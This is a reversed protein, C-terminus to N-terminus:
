ERFLHSLKSQSLEYIQPYKFDGLLHLFAKVVYIKQIVKHEHFTM